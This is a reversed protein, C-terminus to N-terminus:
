AGALSPRWRLTRRETMSLVANLGVAVMMLIILSAFVGNTNFQGASYSILWGLGRNAAVIEGVVAGVLSYPLAMRLGVYVSPLASPVIVKWVLDRRGAGLVRVVDQLERDVDRVGHATNYFVLFFVIVGGLVTKMEIGIGFWVVFLPALALRPLANLGSIIPDLIKALTAYRGILYGVIIGSSAGLLFGLAAEQLTVLLHEVIYGTSIWEWLVGAILWPNGIFFSDLLRDSSLQWAAVVACVVGVRVALLPWGALGTPPPPPADPETPEDTDADPPAPPSESKTSM